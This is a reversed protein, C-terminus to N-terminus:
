CKIGEQSASREMFINEIKKCVWMYMHHRFIIYWSSAAHHSSVLSIRMCSVVAEVHIKWEAEVAPFSM